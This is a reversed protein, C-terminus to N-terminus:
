GFIELDWYWTAFGSAIGLLAGICGLIVGAKAFRRGAASSRGAAIARLEMWGLAIALGGLISGGLLLSVIGIILAAVAKKSRRGRRSSGKAGSGETPSEPRTLLHHIVETLRELHKELPPTSADLWHATSLYYELSKALPQNDLRLPIIIKKGNVAREVERKVQESHNAAASLAIVVIGSEDIIDTTAERPGAGQLGDHPAYRCRLGSRKLRECVTDAVSHDEPACCVFVDQKM